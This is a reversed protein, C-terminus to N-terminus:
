LSSLTCDQGQLHNETCLQLKERIRLARMRLTSAGIGFLESLMKRTKIRERKDGEYYNLILFRDDQSLEDLSQRLAEARDECDNPSACPTTCPELAEDFPRERRCRERAMERVLMRAVGISYTRLDRIQEGQAIKRACRNMTEDAYDDPTSCGRWEFLRVLDRRVRLYRNAAVDRDAGLSALLGDFANQTLSWKQRTEHVVSQM